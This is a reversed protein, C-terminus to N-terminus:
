KVIYLEKDIITLYKPTEHPKLIHVNKYGAKKLKELFEEQQREYEKQSIRM